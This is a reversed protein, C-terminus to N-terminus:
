GSLKLFVANDFTMVPEGNQNLAQVKSTMVWWDPMSGSKRLGTIENAYSIRDGAFVPKIWKIHKMGPSPGFEPVPKGESRLKGAQIKSAARQLKMWVSITHWGSACLGGFLSDKAKISDTHFIQPDWEKAFRLINEGTFLFDGIEIRNGPRIHDPIEPMESM